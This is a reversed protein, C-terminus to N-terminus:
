IDLTDIFEENTQEKVDEINERKDRRSTTESEFVDEDDLDELSGLVAGVQVVIEEKGANLLKVPITTDTDLSVVSHSAISKDKITSPRFHATKHHKPTESLKGEIIVESGPAIKIEQTATVKIEYASNPISHLKHITETGYNNIITLRKRGTDVVARHTQLFDM